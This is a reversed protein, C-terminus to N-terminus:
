AVADHWDVTIGTGGTQTITQTGTTLGVAGEDWWTTTVDNLKNIMSTTGVKATRTVFDVILNGGPLDVFSMVAGTTENVIIVNAAAAHSVTITPETPATGGNYVIVTATDTDTHPTNEYFYPLHMRYTLAFACQWPSPMANVSFAFEDDMSLGLIRGFSTFEVGGRGAPPAHNFSVPENSVTAALFNTRLTALSQPTKARLLGEYVVTKGRTLSPYPTEGPRSTNPARNDDADPRDRLGTVKVLQVRPWGSLDNITFGNFTHLGLLGQPGELITLAPASM